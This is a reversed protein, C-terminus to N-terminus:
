HRQNGRIADSQMRNCSIALRQTGERLTESAILDGGISESHLQNCSIAESQM